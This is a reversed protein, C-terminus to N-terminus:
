FCNSSIRNLPETPSIFLIPYFLVVYDIESQLDVAIEVGEIQDNGNDLELQQQCVLDQTVSHYFGLCQGICSAAMTTLGLKAQSENRLHLIM